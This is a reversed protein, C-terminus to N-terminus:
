ENEETEEEENKNNFMLLDNLTFDKTKIGKNLHIITDQESDPIVRFVQPIETINSNKFLGLWRTKGDESLIDDYIYSIGWERFKGKMLDCHICAPSTRGVIVYHPVNRNNKNNNKM